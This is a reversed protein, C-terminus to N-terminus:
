EDYEEEFDDYEEYIYDEEAASRKLKEELYYKSIISNMVESINKGSWECLEDVMNRTMETGRFGIYDTKPIGKVPRGPKRKEEVIM